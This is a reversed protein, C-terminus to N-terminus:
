KPDQQLGLINYAKENASTTALYSAHANNIGGLDLAMIQLQQDQEQPDWARDEQRVRWYNYLILAGIGILIVSLPVVVGIIIKQSKSLGSESRSDLGADSAYSDTGTRTPTPTSLGHDSASDSAFDSVSDSASGSDSDTTAGSALIATEDVNVPTQVVNQLRYIDGGIVGIGSLVTAAPPNVSGVDKDTYQTYSGGSYISIPQNLVKSAFGVYQWLYVYYNYFTADSSCLDSALVITHSYIAAMVVNSGQESYVTGFPIRCDMNFVSMTSVPTCTLRGTNNMFLRSKSVCIDMDGNQEATTRYNVVPINWSTSSTDMTRRVFAQASSNFGDMAIAANYTVTSDKNFAIVAINNEWTQANYNPHVHIDSSYVKSIVTVAGSTSNDMLVHYTTTENLTLGSTFDLCQATVFASTFSILALECTTQMGNKYLIAGKFKNIDNPVVLRPQLDNNPLLGCACRVGFALVLYVLLRFTELGRM